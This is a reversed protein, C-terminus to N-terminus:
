ESEPCWSDGTQTETGFENQKLYSIRTYKDATLQYECIITWTILNGQFDTLVMYKVEFSNSSYNSSDVVSTGELSEITALKKQVIATLRANTKEISGGNNSDPSNGTAGGCGALILCVAFGITVLNKMAEDYVCRGLVHADKEYKPPYADQALLPLSQGM